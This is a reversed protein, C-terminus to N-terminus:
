IGKTARQYGCKGGKSIWSVEFGLKRLSYDRRCKQLKTMQFIYLLIMSHVVQQSQSKGETYNRKLNMFVTEHTLLQNKKMASYYEM